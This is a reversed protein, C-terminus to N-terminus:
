GDEPSPLGFMSLDATALVEKAHSYGADIATRFEKWDRIAIEDVPPEFLLDTHEHGARTQSESNVTGARMLISIINPGGRINEGLVGWDPNDTWGQTLDTFAEHSEVDIGIISGRRMEAMIDTPFNNIVAGDVMVDGDKVVPPVIGPIATSARLAQWILGRRQIVEHGATLNSSICFYPLWLEEIHIDRFNGELLHQMRRGGFLSISPFTLSGLPNQTVFADHMREELEDQSWGLALGAGVIGGMSTGGVHDIQIGAENLARLVGLHAFGRAGGGALVLGTARGSILRAMRAIDSRSNEHVNYHFDPKVHKVWDVAGTARTASARHVLALEVFRRAGTREFAKRSYDEPPPDDARGVLLIRDAQRLCLQTWSSGADEAVYVVHDHDSEVKYFWESDKEACEGDLLRVRRGADTLAIKLQQAIPHHPARGGLPLLAITKPISRWEDFNRKGRQLEHVRYVLIKALNEMIIPYAAALEHFMEGSIRLLETDRLAILTGLRKEGSLIGFEGLTQGPTFQNAMYEEGEANTLLMGISGATIIYLNHAEEGHRMLTWGGPLSMWDFHRIINPIDKDEIGDFLALRPILSMLREPYVELVQQLVKGRVRKTLSGRTPGLAM